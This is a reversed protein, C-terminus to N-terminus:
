QCNATKILQRQKYKKWMLLNVPSITSGHLDDMLNFGVIPKMWSQISCITEHLTSDCLKCILRNWGLYPNHSLSGFALRRRPALRRRLGRGRLRRRRCGICCCGPTKNKCCSRACHLPTTKKTSSVSLSRPGPLWIGLEWFLPFSSGRRRNKWTQLCFLQWRWKPFWDMDLCWGVKVRRTRSWCKSLRWLWRLQISCVWWARWLTRQQPQSKTKCRGTVAVVRSWTWGTALLLSVPLSLDLLPLCLLPGQQLRGQLNSRGM